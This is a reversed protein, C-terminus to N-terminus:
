MKTFPSLCYGFYILLNSYILSHYTNLLFSIFITMSTSIQLPRVSFTISLSRLFALKHTVKTVLWFLYLLPQLPLNMGPINSCHSSIPTPSTSHAQLLATPLPWHTLLAPHPTHYLNVSRAAWKWSRLQRKLSISVMAPNQASSHPSRVWRSLIILGWRWEGALWWPIDIRNGGQRESRSWKKRKKRKKMIMAVVSSQSVKIKVQTMEIVELYTKKGGIQKGKIWERYHSWLSWKSFTVTKHGLNSGEIVKKGRLIFGLSTLMVKWPRKGLGWSWTDVMRRVWM